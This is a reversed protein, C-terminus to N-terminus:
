TNYHRTTFYQSIVDAAEDETIGYKNVVTKLLTKLENNMDRYLLGSTINSENVNYFDKVKKIYNM